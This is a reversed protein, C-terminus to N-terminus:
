TQGNKPIFEQQSYHSLYHKVDQSSWAKRWSELRAAVAKTADSNVTSSTNFEPLVIPQHIVVGETQPVAEAVDFYLFEGKPRVLTTKKFIKQYTQQAQFTYLQNLNDLTTSVQQNAQLAADLKQEAEDYKKQKILIVALNNQLARTLEPASISAKSLESWITYAQKLQGKQMAQWGNQFQKAQKNLVSDNTAAYASSLVGQSLVLAAICAMFEQKIFKSVKM